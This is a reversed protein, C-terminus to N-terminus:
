RHFVGRWAVEVAEQKQARKLGLWGGFREEKAPPTPLLRAEAPISKASAEIQQPQQRRITYKHKSYKVTEETSELVIEEASEVLVTKSPAAKKPVPAMKNGAPEENWDAGRNQDAALAAIAPPGVVSPTADATGLCAAERIKSCVVEFTLDEDSDFHCMSAHDGDAPVSADGSEETVAAMKEVICSETNPWCKTEYFSTIAYNPALQPFKNNIDILDRSNRQLSEVLGARRGRARDLM